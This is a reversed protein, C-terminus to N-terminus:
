KRPRGRIRLMRVPQVPDDSKRLFPTLASAHYTGLPIKIDNEHAVVYSSSGKREIIVYPGDRKPVFKSSVGKANNSLVHTNILVKSGVEYRPQNRRRDNSYKKNHDQQKYVNEKADKFVDVMLELYPTIEAM